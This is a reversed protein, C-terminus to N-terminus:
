GSTKLVSELQLVNEWGKGDSQFGLDGFVNTADLAKAYAMRMAEQMSASIPLSTRVILDVRPGRVMGDLQVDGMRTLSLDLIFRTGGQANEPKEEEAERRVHFVVKSIENQWMLPIPFSKWEGAAGADAAGSLTATEGSLRSLISQKGLKQLMDTKKDGLWAQLEGSKVAAMFVIMAPGLSAPNSPSPIIRGLIQAAQPTTQYFAQFLEDMVPWLTGAQMLPILPRWAPPLASLNQLTPLPTATGTQPAVSTPIIQFSQPQLTIAAGAPVSNPKVQLVFNQPTNQPAASPIQVVPKQDPTLSLVPVTIPQAQAAGQPSQPTLLPSAAPTQPSAAAPAGPPTVSIIKADLIVQPSSTMPAPQVNQPTTPAASFPLIAKVAQIMISLLAAAPKSQASPAAGGFSDSIGAVLPLLRVSDGVKGTSQPTISLPATLPPLKLPPYAQFAQATGLKSVANPTPPTQQQGLFDPPTPMPVAQGPATAPISQPTVPPTAQPQAPIQSTTVPPSPLPAKVQPTQLQAQAQPQPQPQPPPPTQPQVQTQSTPPAPQTQPAPRVTVNRPPSGPPVDIEVRQGPQPQRGCISIDIEGEATRIRTSGDKNQQVVEGELRIARANNQLSDPLSVIPVVQGKGAQPANPTPATPPISPGTM